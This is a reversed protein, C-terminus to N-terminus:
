FKGLEGFTVKKVAEDLNSLGHNCCYDSYELFTMALVVKEFTNEMSNALNTYVEFSKFSYLIKANEVYKVILLDAFEFMKRLGEAKPSNHGYQLLNFLDHLMQGAATLLPSDIERPKEL